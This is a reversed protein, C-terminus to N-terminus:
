RRALGDLEARRREPEPFPGIYSNKLRVGDGNFLVLKGLYDEEAVNLTEAKIQDKLVLVPKLFWDFIVDAPRTATTLETDGDGVDM